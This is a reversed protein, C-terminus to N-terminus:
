VQTSRALPSIHFSPHSSGSPWSILTREAFRATGNEEGALRIKDVGRAYSQDRWPGAVPNLHECRLLVM